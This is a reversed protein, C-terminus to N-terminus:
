VIVGVANSMARLEPMLVDPLSNSKKINETGWLPRLNRWNYAVKIHAEISLNFLSVPIVIM